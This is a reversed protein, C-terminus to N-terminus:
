QKSHYQQYIKIVEVYVQMQQPNNFAINARQRIFCRMAWCVDLAFDGDLQQLQELIPLVSAQPLMPMLKQWETQM